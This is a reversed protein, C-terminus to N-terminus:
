GVGAFIGQLAGYLGVVGAALPLLAMIAIVDLIDSIRGIYPSPSTKSYALGAALVLGATLAVVVMWTLMRTIPSLGAVAGLLVLATAVIGGVLMPVRQRPTPFLRARLLIAAAGVAALTAGWGSPRSLLVATCVVTVVSAALLLGTLLQHSRAAAAFVASRRPTPRDTLMEEAREPLEPMPLRGLWASLLPYGPLMVIAVTLAVAAAGAPAMSALCLLGGVAGLLGVVITAVFIQASAAIGVYGLVGVLIMAVAGLVIQPAGFETPVRDAPGAVLFGGVAAYAVACAAVVAGAGADGGARALVVGVAVLLGAFGLALSGPLSWPPKAAVLGILGLHLVVAVLALACRRTAPKGWSREARRSGSAIIEVVDDYALEPWEARRPVLHLVEGDRVAQMALSRRVDLLEGASRRLAWGGHQEGQDALGEGAHRLLHPLLEGLPVTEPLAVDVRRKPTAVTVRALGVSVPATM